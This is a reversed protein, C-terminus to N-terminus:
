DPGALSALIEVGHTFGIAHGEGEFVTLEIDHMGTTAERVAPLPAVPDLSGHWWRTAVVIDPLEFNWPQHLLLLDVVAGDIGTRFAERRTARFRAQVDPRSYVDRDPGARTAMETVSTDVDAAIAAFHDHAAAEAELRDRAVLAALPDDVLFRPPVVGGIVGVRRIMSPMRAACALAYPGGASMGVVTVTGMDLARTADAVDDAWSILAREPAPDSLGFGPRELCVLRLGLDAAADECGLALRRSGPTGHFVVVPAGNADGWEAFGVARGDRVHVTGERRAEPPEGM